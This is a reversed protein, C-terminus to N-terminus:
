VNPRYLSRVHDIKARTQNELRQLIMLDTVSLLTFPQFGTKLPRPKLPFQDAHKMICQLASHKIPVRVFNSLRLLQTQIQRQDELEDYLIVLIPQRSNVYNAYRTAWLKGESMAFSKWDNGAIVVVFFLM